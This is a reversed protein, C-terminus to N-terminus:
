SAMIKTKQINLKLGVKENEGKVKMLLSELEESEAMLTIDDTYRLNNINGWHDQSWRTSRGTQCKAHHIRWILDYLCPLLICGQCIGKRIQFCDTTGRIRISNLSNLLAKKGKERAPERNYTVVSTIKFGKGEWSGHKAESKRGQLQYNQNM